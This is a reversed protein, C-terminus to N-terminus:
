ANRHSSRELLTDLNPLLPNELRQTPVTRQLWPDDDFVPVAIMKMLTVDLVCRQYDLDPTLASWPIAFRKRGIGLFGGLAVVVYRVCGTRTDLIIEEIEGMRKGAADYVDDEMLSTAGVQAAHPRSDVQMSNKRASRTKNFM